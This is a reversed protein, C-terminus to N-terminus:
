RRREVAQDIARLLDDIPWPWFPRGLHLMSRERASDAGVGAEHFIDRVIDLFKGRQQAARDLAHARIAAPDIRERALAAVAEAIARPEPSVTRCFAPDFFHDRGGRNITNVVPLGCLLYEMSAFMAKRESPTLLLNFPAFNFRDAGSFNHFNGSDPDAPNWGTPLCLSGGGPQRRLATTM